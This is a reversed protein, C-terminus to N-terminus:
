IQAGDSIGRPLAPSLQTRRYRRHHRSSKSITNSFNVLRSKAAPIARRRRWQRLTAPKFGLTTAATRFEERTVYLGLTQFATSPLGSVEAMFSQQVKSSRSWSDLMEAPEGPLAASVALRFSAFPSEAPIGELFQRAREPNQPATILSKM